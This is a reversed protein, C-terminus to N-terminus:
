PDITHPFWYHVIITLTSLANKLFVLVLQFNIVAGNLRTNMFLLLGFCIFIPKLDHVAECRINNQTDLNNWLCCFQDDRNQLVKNLPTGKVATFSKLVALKALNCYKYTILVVSDNATFLIITSTWSSANSMSLLFKRPAYTTILTLNLRVRRLLAVTRM